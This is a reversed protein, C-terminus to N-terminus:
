NVVEVPSKTSALELARDAPPPTLRLATRAFRTAPGDRVTEAAMPSTDSKAPPSILRAAAALRWDLKPSTPSLAASRISPSLAWIEAALSTSRLAPETRWSPELACTVAMPPCNLAVEPWALKPSLRTALAPFAIRTEVVAPSRLRPSLAARVPSPIM